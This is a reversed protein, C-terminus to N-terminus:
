VASAILLIILIGLLNMTYSLLFFGRQSMTSVGILALGIEDPFPSALILAGIVPLIRRFRRQRLVRLIRKWKPGTLLAAADKAIRHRVFWFLVCDGAVSGLAGVAAILAINGDHALSSFMAISIPTTFFSTFFVGSIFSVLLLNDGTAHLLAEVTGAQVLYIAVYISISIIGIDVLFKKMKM